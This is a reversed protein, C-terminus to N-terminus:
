NEASRRHSCHERLHVSLRTAFSSPPEVLKLFGTLGDLVAARSYSKEIRLKPRISNAFASEPNLLNCLQWYTLNLNRSLSTQTM